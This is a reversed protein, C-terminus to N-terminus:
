TKISKDEPFRLCEAWWPAKWCPVICCLNQTTVCKRINWSGPAQAPGTGCRFARFLAGTEGCTGVKLSGMFAMPPTTMTAAPVPRAGHLPKM